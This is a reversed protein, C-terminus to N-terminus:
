NRLSNYPGPKLPKAQNQDNKTTSSKQLKSMSRGKESWKPREFTMSLKFLWAKDQLAKPCLEILGFCVILPPYFLYVKLAESFSSNKYLYFMHILILCQHVGQHLHTTSFMVKSKSARRVPYEQATSASVTSLRLQLHVFWSPYAM